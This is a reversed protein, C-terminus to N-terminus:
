GLGCHYYHVFFLLFTQSRTLHNLPYLCKIGLRIGSNSEQSGCSLLLSSRGNTRQGRCTDWRVCICVHAYVCMQVCVCVSYIFLIYCFCRKHTQFAQLKDLFSPYIFNSGLFTHRSFAVLSFVAVKGQVTHTIGLPMEPISQFGGMKLEMSYLKLKNSLRTQKSLSNQFSQM